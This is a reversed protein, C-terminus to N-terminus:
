APSDAALAVMAGNGVSAPKGDFPTCIALNVAGAKGLIKLRGMDALVKVGPDLEALLASYFKTAREMNNTGITVYAIMAFRRENERVFKDRRATGSILLRPLSYCM